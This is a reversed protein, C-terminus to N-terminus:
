VGEMITKSLLDGFNKGANPMMWQYVLIQKEM